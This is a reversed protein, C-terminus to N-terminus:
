TKIQISDLLTQLEKEKIEQLENKKLSGIKINMIRVRKLDRVVYGLAACMRRIQHTKGETLIISFQTDSKKAVVAPKTIYGEINVGQTLWKILHNSIKKDVRVLYEKEHKEEPNLLPGTIRGDNTLIILGHSNKDLRGIPFLDKRKIKTVIDEEKNQPGHTVIGIPKNYIFYLLKQRKKSHLVKVEDNKEVIDGLLARKGNIKVFGKKILDDAGRRSAYGHLALYKNIRIPYTIPLNKM